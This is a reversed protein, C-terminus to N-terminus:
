PGVGFFKLGAVIAAKWGFIEGTLVVGVALLMMRNQGSLQKSIQDLRGDLTMEETERSEVRAVTRGDTISINTIDRRYRRNSAATLAARSAAAYKM